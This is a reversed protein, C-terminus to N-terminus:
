SNIDFIYIKEVGLGVDSIRCKETHVDCLVNHDPCYTQRIENIEEVCGFLLLVCLVM